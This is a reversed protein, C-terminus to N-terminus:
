PMKATRAAISVTLSMAIPAQARILIVHAEDGPALHLGSRLTPSFPCGRATCAIEDDFFLVPGRLTHPGQEPDEGTALLRIRVTGVDGGSHALTITVDQKAPVVFRQVRLKNPEVSLDFDLREGPAVQKFRLLDGAVDLPGASDEESVGRVGADSRACGDLLTASVAIAALVVIGTKSM